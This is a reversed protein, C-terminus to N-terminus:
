ADEVESLEPSSEEDIDNELLESEITERWLWRNLYNDLLENVLPEATEYGDKTRKPPRRHHAICNRMKEIAGIKDKLGALFDADNNDAVPKRNIETQLEEYQIFNRINELLDNIKPDPRQNLNVYQSFLLHFFQNELNDQMEIDTPKEKAAIQEKEDKLLKYTEVGQYANLYILTLVRRLKM